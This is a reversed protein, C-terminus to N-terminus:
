PLELCLQVKHSKSSQRAQLLRGSSFLHGKHTAPSFFVGSSSLQADMCSISNAREQQTDADHLQVGSTSLHGSVEEEVARLDLKAFNFNRHNTPNPSKPTDAVSALSKISACRKRRLVSQKVARDLKVHLGFDAIKARM